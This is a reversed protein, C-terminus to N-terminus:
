QEIAGDIQQLHQRFTYSSDNVRACDSRPPETSLSPNDSVIGRELLPEDSHDGWDRHDSQHSHALSDPHRARVRARPGLRAHLRHRPGQAAAPVCASMSADEAMLSSARRAESSARDIGSAAGLPRRRCISGLRITHRRAAARQLNELHATVLAQALAPHLMQAEKLALPRPNPRDQRDKFFSVSSAEEPLEAVQQKEAPVKTDLAQELVPPHRTRELRRTVLTSPYPEHRTTVALMM